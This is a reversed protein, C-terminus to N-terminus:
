PESDPLSAPVSTPLYASGYLFYMACLSPLKFISCITESNRASFVRISLAMEASSPTELLPAAARLWTPAPLTLGFRCRKLASPLFRNDSSIFFRHASRRFFAAFRYRILPRGGRRVRAELKRALFRAENM